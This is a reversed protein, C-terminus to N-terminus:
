WPVHEVVQEPLRGLLVEKREPGSVATDDRRLVPMTEAARRPFGDEYAGISYM